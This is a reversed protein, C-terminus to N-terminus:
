RGRGGTFGAELQLPVAQEPSRGRAEIALAVAARRELVDRIVEPEGVGREVVVDAVLFLEDVLAVQPRRLEPALGQLPGDGLPRVTELLGLPVDTVVDLHHDA